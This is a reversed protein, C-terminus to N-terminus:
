GSAGMQENADTNITSCQTTDLFTGCHGGTQSQGEPNGRRRSQPVLLEEYLRGEGKETAKLWPRGVHKGGSPFHVTRTQLHIRPEARKSRTNPETKLSGTVERNNNVMVGWLALLLPSSFFIPQQEARHMSMRRHQACSTLHKKKREWEQRESMFEDTFRNIDAATNKRQRLSSSM